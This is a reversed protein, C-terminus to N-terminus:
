ITKIFLCDDEAILFEEPYIFIRVFLIKLILVIGIWMLDFHMWHMEFFNRNSTTKTNDMDALIRLAM